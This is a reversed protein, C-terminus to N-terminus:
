HKLTTLNSRTTQTPIAVLAHKGESRSSGMKTENKHTHGDRSKEEMKTKKSFPMESIWCNKERGEKTTEPAAELGASFHVYWVNMWSQNWISERIAPRQKSLQRHILWRCLPFIASSDRKGVDPRYILSEVFPRNWTFPPAHCRTQSRDTQRRGPLQQVDHIWGDAPVNLLGIRDRLRGKYSNHEDMNKDRVLTFDGGIATRSSISNGQFAISNSEGPQISHFGIRSVVLQSRLLSLFNNKHNWHSPQRLIQVHTGATHSTHGCM